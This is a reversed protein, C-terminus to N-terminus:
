SAVEVMPHIIIYLLVMVVIASIISWKVLGTFKAYTSEHEAYDMASSITGVSAPTQHAAAAGAHAAAAPTSRSAAPKKAM